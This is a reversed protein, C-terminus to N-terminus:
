RYKQLIWRKPFETLFMTTFIGVEGLYFVSNLAGYQEGVTFLM